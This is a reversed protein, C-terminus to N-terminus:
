KRVAREGKPKVARESTVPEVVGQDLLRAALDAPVDLVDGTNVERREGEVYVVFFQKAKLKM